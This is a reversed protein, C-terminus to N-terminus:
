FTTLDLQKVRELRLEYVSRLEDIDVGWSGKLYSKVIELKQSLLDAGAAGGSAARTMIADWNDKGYCVYTCVMEAFDEGPSKRAYQTVFGKQNAVTLSEDGFDDLVYDSNTIKQFEESYSKLQNIIHTFEHYLLQSYGIVANRNEALTAPNFDNLGYLTIKMGGEATGWVSYLSGVAYSGVFHILKPIANRTFDIGGVEEFAEIWVYKILKALALSNEVDAPVLTYSHDSEIDEMKYKVEVNYPYVYNDLLWKDFESQTVPDKFISEGTITNDRCSAFTLAVTLATLIYYKVTKM